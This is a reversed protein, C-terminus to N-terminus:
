RKWRMRKELARDELRCRVKHVVFLFAVVLALLIALEAAENKVFILEDM